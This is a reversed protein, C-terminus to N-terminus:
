LSPKYKCAKYNEKQGGRGSDTLAVLTFGLCLAATENGPSAANGKLFVGGYIIKQLLQHKAVLERITEENRDGRGM